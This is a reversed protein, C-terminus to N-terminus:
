IARYKEIIDKNLEMGLGPKNPLEMFGDKIRYTEIPLDIWM